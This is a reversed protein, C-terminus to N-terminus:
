KYKIEREKLQLKFEGIESLDTKVLDDLSISFYQSLAIMLDIPPEATANEYGSYTSRKSNIAGAVIEQSRNKRERLYKLNSAFFNKKVPNGYKEHMVHFHPYMSLIYLNHNRIREQLFVNRVKWNDGKERQEITYQGESNMAKRLLIKGKAFLEQITLQDEM